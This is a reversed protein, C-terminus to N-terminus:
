VENLQAAAREGFHHQAEVALETGRRTAYSTDGSTRRVAEAQNSRRMGESAARGGEDAVRAEAVRAAAAGSRDLADGSAQAAAEVASGSRHAAETGPGVQQSQQKRIDAM